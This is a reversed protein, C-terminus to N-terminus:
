QLKYEKVEQLTLYKLNTTYKCKKRRQIKWTKQGNETQFNKINLNLLYLIDIHTSSFSQTTAIKYIKVHYLLPSLDKAQIQQEYQMYKNGM